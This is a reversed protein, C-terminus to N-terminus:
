SHQQKYVPWTEGQWMYKLNIPEQTCLYLKLSSENFIVLQFYKMKKLQIISVHGPSAFERTHFGCQSTQRTSRARVQNPSHYIDFLTCRPDIYSTHNPPCVSPFYSLSVSSSISLSIRLSLHVFPSGVYLCVYLYVSLYVYQDISQDDDQILQFMVFLGSFSIRVMSKHWNSTCCM